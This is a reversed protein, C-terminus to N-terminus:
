QHHKNVDLLVVDLWKLLQPAKQSGVNHISPKWSYGLSKLSPSFRLQLLHTCQCSHPELYLMTSCFWAALLGKLCCCCYIFCRQLGGRKFNQKLSALYHVRISIQKFCTSLSKKLAPVTRQPLFSDETTGAAQQPMIKDRKDHLGVTSHPKELPSTSAPM